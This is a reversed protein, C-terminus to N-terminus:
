VTHTMAAAAAHAAADDRRDPRYVGCAKCGVAQSQAETESCDSAYLGCHAGTLRKGRGRGRVDAAAVAERDTM